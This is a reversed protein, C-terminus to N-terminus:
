NQTYYLNMFNCFVAFLYFYYIRYSKKFVSANDKFDVKSIVVM